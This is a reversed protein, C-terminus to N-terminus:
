PIGEFLLSPAVAKRAKGALHAAATLVAPCGGLLKTVPLSLVPRMAIHAFIAALRLRLAFANRWAARYARHIELARAADIARAPQEILYGALLFASQLAMSMGEGILPHMEGAANGVSFVGDPRELRIRPQLPGISLWPAPRRAVELIERVGRCSDRLYLEFAAGASTGPLHARWAALTDRRICGALTLRRDEAMVLGGYGGRFSLVPLLGQPLTADAFSAKFGFLDSGQPRSGQPRRRSTLGIGHEPGKEWSGHADVIIRVRRVISEQARGPPDGPESVQIDCEFSGAKAMVSRVKGPQILIVGLESARNVLIADLQDRGLARGYRYPGDTCPPLDAIVTSAGRMWGVQHLEPGARDRVAAGVGLRDLLALSAASLCEGCVKQRPYSSKEVLIVRWGARKLLIATSAGAPGAGIVLVDADIVDGM